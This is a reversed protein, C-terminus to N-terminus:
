AGCYVAPFLLQLWMSIKFHPALFGPPTHSCKRWKVRMLVYCHALKYCHQGRYFLTSQTCDKIDAFYTCQFTRCGGITYHNYRPIPRLHTASWGICHSFSVLPVCIPLWSTPLWAFFVIVVNHHADCHCRPRVRHVAVCWHACYVVYLNLFFYSYRLTFEVM